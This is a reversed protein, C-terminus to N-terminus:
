AIAPATPSAPAPEAVVPLWFTVSTGAGPRSELKWWGGAIQARERMATLGLHGPASGNEAPTFGSGDDDIQVRWGGDSDEIRVLLFSAGAHKRVNVLAEMAIRYLIVRTEPPPERTLHDALEFRLNAESQIQELQARLAAALGSRELVLPRLNFMLRRLRTLAGQFADELKDLAEVETETSLRKRLQQLRLAAAAMAQISDDHIDAAIRIREAEQARVLLVLLEQRERETKRVLEVTAELREESRKRDSVDRIAAVMLHGADTTMASLSIDIPFETGDQRRGALDPGLAMPRRKPRAMFKARDLVHARHFRDPLLTEMPQRVLEEHTFGFLKEAQVNVLQIIGTSDTIVMADPMADLLGRFREELKRETERALKRESIDHITAVALRGHETEMPSLIVDVPLRTADKRRVVFEMPQEAREREATDLWVANGRVWAERLGQPLLMEAARGVLEDRRYGFLQEARRNLDEIVGQRDVLLKADPAAELLGRFKEESKQLSVEATRAQGADRLLERFCGLALEAPMSLQLRAARLIAEVIERDTAGKVLYGSAGAALMEYVSANEDRVSLALCRTSPSCLAIERTARPGGGGPMRVDLLAVDPRERGAIEIAEDATAAVAVLTLTSEDGLLDALAERVAADDDAILVSVRRVVTRAVAPV